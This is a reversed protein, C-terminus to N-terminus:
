STIERVHNNKKKWLEYYEKNDSIGKIALITTRKDIDFNVMMTLPQEFTYKGVKVSIYPLGQLLYVKRYEGVEWCDEDEKPPKDSKIETHGGNGNPILFSVNGFYAIRKFQILCIEQGEMVENGIWDTIKQPADNRHEYMWAHEMADWLDNGELHALHPYKEKFEPATM